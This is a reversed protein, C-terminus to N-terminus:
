FGEVVLDNEHFISAFAARLALRKQDFDSPNFEIKSLLSGITEGQQLAESRVFPYGMTTVLELTRSDFPICLGLAGGQIAAVAGHIRMGFSLDVRGADDIWQVAHSYFRGRGLLLEKCREAPWDSEGWVKSAWATYDAALHFQRTHIALLLYQRDTQHVTQAGLEWAIRALIGEERRVNPEMTGFLYFASLNAGRAKARSIAEAITTGSINPNTFNSPCGTVVTNHIGHYALVDQTYPGRVGITKCRESIVRLFRISGDPLNLKASNGIPAQAGLGVVVLPLNVREFFDAWWGLDWEPNIQNAAPFVLVDAQSSWSEDPDLWATFKTHKLGSWVANHFLLNGTNDGILDLAAEFGRVSVSVGGPTGLLAVRKRHPSM